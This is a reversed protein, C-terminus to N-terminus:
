GTTLNFFALSAITVGDSIRNNLLHDRIETPSLLLSDVIEDQFTHSRFLDVKQGFFVTACQASLGPLVRFRGIRKLDIDEIGTEELLERKAAKEETEGADIGGMPLEISYDQTPYRYQKLFLIKRSKVDQLIISICNDRDVVFYEGRVGDTQTILKRVSMWKNKIQVSESIIEFNRKLSM